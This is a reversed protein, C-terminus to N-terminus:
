GQGDGLFTPLDRALRTQARHLLCCWCRQSLALGRWSLLWLRQDSLRLSRYLVRRGFKGSTCGPTITQRLHGAAVAHRAAVSLLHVDSKGSPCRPPHGSCKWLGKLADSELSVSELESGAAVPDKNDGIEECFTFLNQQRVQGM